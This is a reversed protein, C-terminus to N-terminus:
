HHLFTSTLFVGAVAMILLEVFTGTSLEWQMLSLSKSREQGCIMGLTELLRLMQGYLPDDVDEALKIRARLTSVEASLIQRFDSLGMMAKYLTAIEGKRVCDLEGLLPPGAYSRLVRM